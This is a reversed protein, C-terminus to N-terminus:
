HMKNLFIDTSIYKPDSTDLFSGKLTNLKEIGSFM